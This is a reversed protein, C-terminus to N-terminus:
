LVPMIMVIQLKNVSREAFERMVDRMLLVTDMWSASNASEVTLTATNQSTAAMTMPM